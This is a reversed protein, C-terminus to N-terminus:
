WCCIRYTFMYGRDTSLQYWAVNFNITTIYEDIHVQENIGTPNNKLKDYEKRHPRKM